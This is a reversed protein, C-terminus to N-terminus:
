SDNERTLLTKIEYLTKDKLIYLAYFYVVFATPVIIFFSASLSQMLLIVLGMLVSAGIPSGFRGKLSFDNIQKLKRWMFVGTGFQTVLSAWAAGIIGIAPILYFNLGVNVLAGMVWIPVMERQRNQAFIAHIIVTVPFTILVSLALIQMSTAAPLYESGYFVSVIQSATFIIGLTIPYAVLTITAIGRELVRTFESISKQTLRALAPFLGGVIFAPLLYLFAIPKQAASYFGVQSADYFWGIMVTDINVLLVGFVSALTMPWAASIIPRILAKNFQSFTKSIYDRLFYITIILGAGAGIAYATALSEPSPLTFIVLFGIGVIIVQTVINILAELEMREEARFLSTGFRRLSDFVFLIGTAYIIGRSLPIGTIYDTGFLIFVLSAAILVLKIVSSTAFYTKKAEESKAAERIMVGSIGIDSFVTLIAALSTMYSFTGWGAAGLIRAAFVIILVRLLRGTIEGFSLWFTNKVITQSTSTNKFLFRRLGSNTMDRIM